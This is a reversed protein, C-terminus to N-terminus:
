AVEYTFHCCPCELWRKEPDGADNMFPSERYKLEKECNPCNEMAKGKQEEGM